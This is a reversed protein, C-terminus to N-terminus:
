VLNHGDSRSTTILISIPINIQFEYSLSLCLQNLDTKNFKWWRGRLGVKGQPNKM